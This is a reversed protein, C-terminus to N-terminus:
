QTGVPIPLDGIIPGTAFQVVDQGPLFVHLRGVEHAFALREFREGHQLLLTENACQDVVITLQGTTRM